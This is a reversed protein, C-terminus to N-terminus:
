VLRAGSSAIFGFGGTRSISGDQSGKRGALESAPMKKTRPDSKPSINKNLYPLSLLDGSAGLDGTNGVSSTCAAHEPSDQATIPPWGLRVYSFRAM